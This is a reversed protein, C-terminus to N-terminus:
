EEAGDQRGHRDQAPRRDGPRGTASPERRVGDATGRGEPYDLPHVRNESRRSSTAPGATGPIRGLTMKLTTATSVAKAVVDPREIMLYHGCPPVHIIHGRLRVLHASKGDVTRM